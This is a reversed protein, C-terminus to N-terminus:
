LASVSMRIPWPYTGQQTSASLLFRFGLALTTRTVGSSSPSQTIAGGAPSLQVDNTLGKVLIQRMFDGANSFELLYGSPSNSQIAVQAPAPVDVYGKEVDASTVVVASPQALVRLSARKLVTATVVLNQSGSAAASDPVMLVGAVATALIASQAVRIMTKFNKMIGLGTMLRYSMFCSYIEM